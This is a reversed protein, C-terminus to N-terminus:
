RPLTVAARGTVVASVTTRMDLRVPITEGLGGAAQATGQRSITIGRVSARVVVPEGSNILVPRGVAPMRLPEGARILRRAVFGVLEAASSSNTTDFLIDAPTISDGRAITRAARPGRSSDQATAISSLLVLAFLARAIMM